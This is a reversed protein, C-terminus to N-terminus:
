PVRAGEVIVAEDAARALLLARRRRLAEQAAPSAGRQEADRLAADVRALNEAFRARRPHASAEGVAVPADVSPVPEPTERVPLPPSPVDAAPREEGVSPAASTRATPLRVWVFGLLVGGLLASGWKM